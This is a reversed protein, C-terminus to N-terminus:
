KPNPQNCVQVPYALKEFLDKEPDYHFRQKRFEFSIELQGDELKKRDLPVIEKKGTFDAATVQGYAHADDFHLGEVAAHSTPFSFHHNTRPELNLWHTTQTNWRAIRPKTLAQAARFNWWARSM